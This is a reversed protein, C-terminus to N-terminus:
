KPTSMPTNMNRTIICKLGSDHNHKDPTYLKKPENGFDSSDTTKTESRNEEGENWCAEVHCSSRKVGISFSRMKQYQNEKTCAQDQNNQYIALM